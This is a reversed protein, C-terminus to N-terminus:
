ADPHILWGDADRRQIVRRRILNNVATSVSQPCGGVIHGLTENTLSLELVIGDRTVRGWRQSLHAFLLEIRRDIGVVHNIALQKSLRRARATARKLLIRHLNPFRAARALVSETLIAVPTQEFVVLSDNPAADDDPDAQLDLLDGAGLLEAFVGSGTEVRRACVGDIIMLWAGTTVRAWNERFSEDVGPRLTYSEVILLDRLIRRQRGDLGLGLEVDCDLLRVLGTSPTATATHV